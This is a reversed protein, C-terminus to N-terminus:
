KGEKKRYEILEELVAVDWDNQKQVTKPALTLKHGLRVLDDRRLKLEATTIM